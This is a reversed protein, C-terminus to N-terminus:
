QSVKSILSDCLETLEKNEETKRELISELTQIQASNKKLSAELRTIEAKSSSSLKEFKDEAEAIKEEAMTKLKKNIEKVSKYKEQATEAAKKLIKENEAAKDLTEKLKEYRHYLDAFSKELAKNDELIQGNSKKLEVLEIAQKEQESVIKEKETTIQTIIDTYEKMLEDFSRLKGQLVKNKKKLADYAVKAKNKEENLLDEQQKLKEQFEKDKKLMLDQFHLALQARIQQMESETYKPIEGIDVLKAGETKTTLLNDHMVTDLDDLENDLALIMDIQNPAAEEFIPQVRNNHINRTLTRRRAVRPPTGFLCASEDMFSVGLNKSTSFIDSTRGPKQVNSQAIDIKDQVPDSKMLPDFKMLVSGRRSIGEKSNSAQELMDFFKPDFLADTAPVFQEHEGFDESVAPHIFTNKNAKLEDKQPSLAVIKDSAVVTNCSVISNDQKTSVTSSILFDTSIDKLEACLDNSSVLAGCDLKDTGNKSKVYSEIVSPSVQNIKEVTGSHCVTDNQSGTFESTLSVNQPTTDKITLPSDTIQLKKILPDENHVSFPSRFSDKVHEITNLSNIEGDDLHQNNICGNLQKGELCVSDYLSGKTHADVTHDKALASYFSGDLTCQSLSDTAVCELKQTDTTNCFQGITSIKDDSSHKRLTTDCCGMNTQVVCESTSKCTQDALCLESTSVCDSQGIVPLNDVIDGSGMRVSSSLLDHDNKEKSQVTLSNTDIPSNSQFSPQSRNLVVENRSDETKLKSILSNTMQIHPPKFPDNEEVLAPKDIEPFNAIKVTPKLPDFTDEELTLKPVVPANALHHSPKLFDRKGVEILQALVPSNAMQKCPKFPDITDDELIPKPVLSSNTIPEQPKSLYGKDETAQALVPSNAMQKCPKFPDITDDELFLNPVLSSNTIPEQPKSLYGKDETPQALVPSNAMQKCPKFPDITDDELIPKPVLSSNTIPEQPKSLYGKDETAQALVPSNAMQKCPKFPDITDDELFLNPVLSSNTIPEQPKSLYGKDETPQALVPSNAMQKCPKFPDITDDELIPKPVLSSNTIPEQPKLLYGKDETPQALVPSNAMQKCPKFPDITDDELFLNPVLSSNTIPEQPKSLYGKDETPQALVPSNAMQKCPKFPDITDDELIPKPVLSSNTIPEQPKLLYGKDETPQALVPSNAMQKCPKFPDITDDELIPKPVLSSNTIPEQPKSLYGKDETPQALVPSNAMQMQPKFPDITDDITPKPIVPSNTVPEQPKLHDRKGAEFPQGLVPSNVMQMHPKFPDITDEETTPKPVVPSHAITACSKLLDRKGVEIPSNAMQMQPKFPDITDDITPKPIVPSNTVPEQPKLHDRKGAESPQGLVPSNVMQMHPKFPDITDEEITPKPSYVVQEYPKFNDKVEEIARSLIPSNAMLMSLKFPDITDVENKQKSVVPSNTIQESPRFLDDKDVEIPQTLIPSNAVQMRPKFPDVIDDEITPKSLVPSNVIQMQTEFPNDINEEIGCKALIPSNVKQVCLKLTDVLDEKIAPKPVVPSNAIENYPKLPDFKEELATLEKLVPSNTIHRPLKFLEDGDKDKEFSTKVLDPSEAVQAHLNTYKEKDITTQVVSKLEETESGVLFHDLMTASLSESVLSLDPSIELGNLLCALEDIESSTKPKVPLNNRQEAKTVNDSVAEHIWDNEISEVPLKGVLEQLIIKANELNDVHDKKTVVSTREIWREASDLQRIFMYPSSVPTVKEPSFKQKQQSSLRKADNLLKLPSSRNANSSSSSHHKVQVEPPANEDNVDM